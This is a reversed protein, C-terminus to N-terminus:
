FRPLGAALEVLEAPPEASFGPLGAADLLVHRLHDVLGVPQPGAGLVAADPLALAYDPSVPLATVPAEHTQRTLRELLDDVPAELVFPAAPQEDWDPHEGSLDVGGVELWFDVALEPVPGVISELAELHDLTVVGPALLPEAHDFDWGLGPLEDVLEECAARVARM